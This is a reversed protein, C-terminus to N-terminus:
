VMRKVDQTEAALPTRDAASAQQVARKSEYAAVIHGAERDAGNLGTPGADYNGTSSPTKQVTLWEQRHSISSDLKRCKLRPQL